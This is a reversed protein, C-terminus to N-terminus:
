GDNMGEGHGAIARRLLARAEFLRRRSTGESVGCATAIEAHSYGELEHMVVTIRLADPLEAIARNLAERLDPAVRDEPAAHGVAEELSAERGRHRDLRRMANLCTTVAVRHLWTTFAAEGRFGELHRFVQIFVDQTLERALQDDRCVRWALRHVREVHRDYLARAAVRDGAVARAIIAGDDSALQVPTTLATQM